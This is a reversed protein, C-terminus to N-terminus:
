FEALALGRGNGEAFVQWSKAQARIHELDTVCYDAGLHSWVVWVREGRLLEVNVDFLVEPVPLPEPLAKVQAVSCSQVVAKGALEPKIMALVPLLNEAPEARVFRWYERGSHFGIIAVGLWLIVAARQNFTQLLFIAGELTLLQLHLQVFLTVRGACLPYNLVASAAIVATLLVLSGFSRSGWFAEAGDAKGQRWRSIVAYVGAIQLPAVVATVLPMRGHWGWFFKALLRLGSSIGHEFQLRLSCDQWYAFYAERDQLNFRHDTLWISVFCLTVMGMLWFVSSRQLRFGHRKAQYIYWGLLRAFIAFPYTYSFAGPLILLLWSLRNKRNAVSQEFFTDDVLFPILAMLVDLTYQKLQISQDLWFTSGLFMSAALLGVVVFSGSRKNLLKAWFFSAVMFCLFPLLRLVAIHYGLWERLAGILLLYLRPFYQGYELPAFIKQLSFNKLTIAVFAEDLWFSPGGIYRIFGALILAALSLWVM